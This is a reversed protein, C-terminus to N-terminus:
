PAPPAAAAVTYGNSSGKSFRDGSNNFQEKNTAYEPGFSQTYYTCTLLPSADNTYAVYIDFFRCQRYTSLGKRAAEQQNYVTKATCADACVQPNYPAGPFKDIGMYTGALAAPPQISADNFNVPGTFGAPTPPIVSYANSGAKSTFFDEGRYQGPNTASSVDLPLGYFTCKIVTQADSSPCTTKDLDKVPTREFYINFSACGAISNCRQACKATDYSTLDSTSTKYSQSEAVLALARWNYVQFYNDPTPADLATDDWLALAKWEEASLKSVDPGSYKSPQPQCTGRKLLPASDPVPLAVAAARSTFLAALLTASNFLM